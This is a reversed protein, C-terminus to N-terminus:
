LQDALVSRAGAPLGVIKNNAIGVVPLVVPLIPNNPDNTSIEVSLTKAVGIARTNVKFELTEQEYPQVILDDAKLSCHCGTESVNVIMRLGGSNRLVIRAPVWEQTADIELPETSVISASAQRQGSSVFAALCYIMLLGLLSGALLNVVLKISKCRSM